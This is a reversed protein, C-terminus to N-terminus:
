HQVLKFKFNDTPREKTYRVILNETNDVCGHSNYHRLFVSTKWMDKAQDVTTHVGIMKDDSYSESYEQPTRESEGFEIDMYKIKIEFSYYNNTHSEIKSIAYTARM